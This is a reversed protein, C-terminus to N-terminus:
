EDDDGGDFNNLIENIGDDNLSDNNRVIYDIIDDIYIHNELDYSNISEIWGYGNFTAYEDNINFKSSVSDLIELPNKNALIENLDQMYFIEDDYNNVSYCYENHLLRLENSDLNNIYEKLKEEIIENKM